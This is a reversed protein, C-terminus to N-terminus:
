TTPGRARSCVRGRCRDSDRDDSRRSGPLGRHRRRSGALPRRVLRRLRVDRRRPRDPGAHPRRAGQAHRGTTSAHTPPRAVHAPSLPVTAALTMGGPGLQQVTVAEDLAMLHGRFESVLDVRPSRRRESGESSTTLTSVSRRPNDPLAAVCTLCSAPCTSLRRRRGHPHQPACRLVHPGLKKSLYVKSERSDDPHREFAVVEFELTDLTGRMDYFRNKTKVVIEDFGAGSGLSGAGREARPLPGTRALRSANRWDLQLAHAPRRVRCCREPARGSRGAQSRNRRHPDRPVVKYSVPALQGPDDPLPAEAM